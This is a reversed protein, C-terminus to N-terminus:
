SNNIIGKDVYKQMMHELAMQQLNNQHDMQKMNAEHQMQAANRQAEVAIKQQDLQNKQDQQQAQIQMQQQQQQSQQDQAQQQIQMQQQQQAMMPAQLAQIHEDCHQDVIQQLPPPLQDYTDTKRFRNHIDLHAEHDYFDRVVPLKVPPKPLKAPDIGQMQAQQIAQQYSAIAQAVNPDQFTKEWQRNEMRAKNEDLETDDFYDSAINEGLMRTVKRTDPIGSKPDTFMGASWMQMIKEDKVAKLTPMSSGPIVDVVEGGTLDAGSFTFAEIEGNEGVIQLQQEEPFHKQVLRLVKEGWQKMGHEYSQVAVSLKTEDQEVQLQLGGFTNNGRPTAGQSIEHAGSIDEMDAEDREMAAQWGNGPEVGAVREPRAGNIPTYPLIAGIENVLDEDEASNLPNLWMPNGMEELIRAEATRKINYSMQPTTLDRVVGDAVATGPIPIMPFFIYPNEGPDETYDLLQLGCTTIKRGHPYKASPWEWYENVMAHHSYKKKGDENLNFEFTNRMQIEETEVKVGYEANIEDINRPTSEVCWGIETPDEATPDVKLKLQDVVLTVIKGTKSPLDKVNLEGLEALDEENVQLDKGGNKDVFVKLAPFGDVLMLLRLRRTKNDMDDENHQFQLFKYSAKAVEIRDDDNTDPHVELQVRNKCLKALLTMVAPKVKNYTYRKEGPKLPPVFVRKTTNDWSIWQNGRYFARNIQIQRLVKYDTGEDIKEKVFSVRDENKTAM